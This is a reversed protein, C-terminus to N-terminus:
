GSYQPSKQQGIWIGFIILIDALLSLVINIIWYKSMEKTSFVFDTMLFLFLTGSFYLIFASIFFFEASKWLTDLDMNSFINKFWIVSGIYVLITELMSLWSDTKPTGGMIWHTQLGVFTLLFAWLLVLYIKQYKKASIRRFFLFICVFELLVYIKFWLTTHINLWRTGIIEYLAGFAILIFYEKIQPFKVVKNRSYHLWLYIAPIGAALFQVDIVVEKYWTM